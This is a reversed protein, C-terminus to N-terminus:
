DKLKNDNKGCSDGAGGNTNSTSGSPAPCPAPPKLLGTMLGVAATAGILKATDPHSTLYGKVGELIGRNVGAHLGKELNNLFSM